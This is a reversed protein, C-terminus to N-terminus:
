GHTVRLFWTAAAWRQMVSFVYGDPKTCSNIGYCYLCYNLKNLVLPILMTVM